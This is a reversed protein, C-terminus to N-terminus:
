FQYKKWYQTSVEYYAQKKVGGGGGAVSTSNRGEQM